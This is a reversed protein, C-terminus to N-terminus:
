KNEYEIGDINIHKYRLFSPILINTGDVATMARSCLRVIHIMSHLATIVRDIKECIHCGYSEQLPSTHPAEQPYIVQNINQLVDGIKLQALM